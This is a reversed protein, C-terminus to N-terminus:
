NALAIDDAKIELEALKNMLAEINSKGAGENALRLRQVGVFADGIGATFAADILESFIVESTQSDTLTYRVYTTVEFDLGFIPQDVRELTAKLEFRGSEAYLGENILSTLLATRFAENSIESTWLPNTTEGGYVKTLNVSNELSPDYQNIHESSFTMNEPKAGSACGYLHTTIIAIFFLKVIKM